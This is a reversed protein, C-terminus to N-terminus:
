QEEGDLDFLRYWPEMEPGLTIRGPDLTTQDVGGRAIVVKGVYRYAKSGRSTFIDLLHTLREEVAQVGNWKVGYLPTDMDLGDCLGPTRVPVEEETLLVPTESEQVDLNICLRRIFLNGYNYGSTFLGVARHPQELKGAMGSHLLRLLFSNITNGVYTRKRYIWRDTHDLVLEPNSTCFKVNITLSEIQATKYPVTFRWTPLLYQENVVPLDIVYEPKLRALLATVEAHMQRNALLLGMKTAIPTSLHPHLYLIKELIEDRLERPLHFFPFMRYESTPLKTTCVTCLVTVVAHDSVYPM